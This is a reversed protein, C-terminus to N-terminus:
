PVKQTPRLYFFKVHIITMLTDTVKAPPPRCHQLLLDKFHTEDLAVRYTGIHLLRRMLTGGEKEREGERGGEGQTKTAITKCLHVEASVGM